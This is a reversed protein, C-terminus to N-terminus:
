SLELLVVLLSLRNHLPRFLVILTDTEFLENYIVEYTYYMNDVLVPLLDYYQVVSSSFLTGSPVRQIWFNLTSINGFNVIVRM